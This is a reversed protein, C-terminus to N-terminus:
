NSAGWEGCAVGPVDAVTDAAHMDRVGVRCEKDHELVTDPDHIDERDPLRVLLVLPHSPLLSQAPDSAIRTESKMSGSNSRASAPTTPFSENM